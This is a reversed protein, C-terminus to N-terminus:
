VITDSGVVADLLEYGNNAVPIIKINLAKSVDELSVDDLFVDGEHRLMVTPVLLAEGLNKGSLQKIIDGGTVLGAVNITDGFFDNVIAAVDCTLNNCKIRIEDLLSNLFAFNATGTVITTHRKVDPFEYGELADYFEQKLNAMLGVGNELQAFDGYFEAPPIPRNAKLYFEDSAYAIRDGYRKHFREGYSEVIDLVEGATEQNYSQIEFLGERYKTIGVPALAISQVASGLNELDSLTRKLEEGDNIGPCLVLQCNIKIGADAFKKLIDLANGAFRNGMM